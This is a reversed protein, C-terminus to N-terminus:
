NRLLAKKSNKIHSDLTGLVMWLLLETREVSSYFCEENKYQNLDMGCLVYKVCRTKSKSTYLRPIIQAIQFFAGANKKRLMKSFCIYMLCHRNGDNDLEIKSVFFIIRNNDKNSYKDWFLNEISVRFFSLPTDGINNYRLIISSRQFKIEKETSTIDTMNKHLMISILITQQPLFQIWM